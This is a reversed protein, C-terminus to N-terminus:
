GSSVGVGLDSYPNGSVPLKSGEHAHAPTYINLHLCDESMSIPPMTVEMDTLGEPNMTELNQLCRISVSSLYELFYM